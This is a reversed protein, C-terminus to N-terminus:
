GPRAIRAAPAIFAGYPEGLAGLSGRSSREPNLHLRGPTRMVGARAVFIRQKAHLGAYLM